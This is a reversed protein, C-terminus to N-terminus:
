LGGADLAGVDRIVDLQQAESLEADVSSDSRSLSAEVIHFHFVVVFFCFKLVLQICKKEIATFFGSSGFFVFGHRM